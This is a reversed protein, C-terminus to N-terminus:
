SAAVQENTRGRLISAGVLIWSLGWPVENWWHMNTGFPFMWGIALVGEVLLGYRRWGPLKAARAISIGPIIAFLNSAIGGIPFFLNEWNGTALGTIQGAVILLHAVFLVKLFVRGLPGRTADLRILGWLAVIWGLQAGLFMAQNALFLTGEGPPFLENPYEVAIAIAWLLGGAIGAVGANRISRDANELKKM